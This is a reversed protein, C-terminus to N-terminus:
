GPLVLSSILRVIEHESFALISRYARIKKSKGAKFDDYCARMKLCLDSFDVMNWSLGSYPTFWSMEPHILATGATNVLYANTENTFQMNGTDGTVVVDKGLALMHAINMGWGEGHHPSVYADFAAMFAPLDASNLLSGYFRICGSGGCASQISRIECKLKEQSACDDDGFYIKLTLGVEPENKFEKLYAPILYQMIGKRPSCDGMGLFNFVPALGLVRSPKVDPNYLGTRVVHPVVRVPPTVGANLYIQRNWESPVWIEDMRNMLFRWNNTIGLVEWPTYGILKRKGKETFDYFDPFCQQVYPSTPDVKNGQLRYSLDLTAQELNRLWLATSLKSPVLEVDWGAEDLARVYDLGATGYGSIDVPCRWKIQKPGAPVPETHRVEQFTDGGQAVQVPAELPSEQGRELEGDLDFLYPGQDLLGGSIRPM